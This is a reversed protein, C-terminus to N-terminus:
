IDFGIFQAGEDIKDFLVVREFYGGIVPVQKVKYAQKRWTAIQNFLTEFLANGKLNIAISKSGKV